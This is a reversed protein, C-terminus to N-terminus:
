KADKNSFYKHCLELPIAEDMLGLFFECAGLLNGSHIHKKTLSKYPLM